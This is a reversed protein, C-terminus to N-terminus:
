GCVMLDSGKLSVDREEERIQGGDILFGSNVSCSAYAAGKMNQVLKEEELNLIVETDVM